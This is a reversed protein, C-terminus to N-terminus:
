MPPNPPPPSINSRTRSAKCSCFVQRSPEPKNTYKLPDQESKLFLFSTRLNWTKNTKLNEARLFAPLVVLPIPRAPLALLTWLQTNHSSLKSAEESKQRLKKGDICSRWFSSFTDTYITNDIDGWGETPGNHNRRSQHHKIEADAGQTDYKFM